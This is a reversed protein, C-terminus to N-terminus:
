KKNFYISIHILSLGLNSLFSEATKGFSFGTNKNSAAVKPQQETIKYTKINGNDKSQRKYM